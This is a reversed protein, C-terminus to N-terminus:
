IEDRFKPDELEVILEVVAKEVCVELQTYMNDISDRANFVKSVADAGAWRVNVHEKAKDKLEIFKNWEENNFLMTVKEYIKVTSECKKELENLSGMMHMQVQMVTNTFHELDEEPSDKKESMQEVLIDYKDFYKKKLPLISDRIKFLIDVRMQTAMASRQKGNEVKTKEINKNNNKSANWAMTLFGVIISISTAIDLGIQIDNM